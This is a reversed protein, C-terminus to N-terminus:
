ILIAAEFQGVDKLRRRQNFHHDGIRSAEVTNESIAAYEICHMKALDLLPTRAKPRTQQIELYVHLTYASGLEPKRPMYARKRTEHVNNRMTALVAANTPYHIGTTYSRLARWSSKLVRLTGM